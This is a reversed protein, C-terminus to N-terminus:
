GHSCCRLNQWRRHSPRSTYISTSTTSWASCAMSSNVERGLASIDAGVVEGGGDEASVFGPEDMMNWSKGFLYTSMMDTTVAYFGHALPIPESRDAMGGLIDVFKDVQVHLIGDSAEVIARKSLM